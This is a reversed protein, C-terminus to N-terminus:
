CNPKGLRCVAEASILRDFEEASLLGRETAVEKISRGSEQAVAAIEAATDYGLPGVLATAAATANQVNRACRKEDAELGDICRSRFM